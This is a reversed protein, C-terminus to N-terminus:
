ANSEPQTPHPALLPPAPRVEIDNEDPMLRWVTMRVSTKAAKLIEVAHEHTTNTLNVNNVVLM